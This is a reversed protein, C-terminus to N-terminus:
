QQGEGECPLGRVQDQAQLGGGTYLPAVLKAGVGASPNSYDQKLQLIDSDLYGVNGTLRISPLEAAKAQGIRNFAAAVRREAAILDPRRELMQLPLGAPVPGPLPPLDPRARLAQAIARASAEAQGADPEITVHVRDAYARLIGATGDTSGGDFILYEVGSVGQSLVSDITRAIYRDQNLSPTVITLPVQGM